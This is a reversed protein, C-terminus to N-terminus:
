RFSMKGCTVKARLLPALLELRALIRHAKTESAELFSPCAVPPVWTAGDGFRGEVYMRSVLRGRRAPAGDGFARRRFRRIRNPARAQKASARAAERRTKGDM